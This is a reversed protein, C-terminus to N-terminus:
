SATALPALLRAPRKAVSRARALAAAPAPALMLGWLIALLVYLHRWHDIDIVFGELANGVFAAYAVIFLPRIVSARLVFRLGALMTLVIMGAFLLGGLWGANLFMSLYVNHVDEHHHNASFQLAGIGLPNNLILGIAKAQGGFRGEPGEDYSQTVSARETLLRGVTDIQTAVALVAVLMVTAAAALITLKTRQRNSQALVFSLGVYIALAVAANFWAGRSFSLLIAFSLFGLRALALLMRAGNDALARHLAYVLAAALFAGLVNPDKFTGSARGYRTFIEASGPLLDFYGVMGAIAAITAAWLYADLILRTHRLPATSVFAALIFAATYLYVSIVTHIASRELDDSQGTALLAGAACALWPAFALAMAPTPLALGLAPLIVILSAMLVDAPAPESLVVAGSAITVWVAAQAMRGLGTHHAAVSESSGDRPATIPM